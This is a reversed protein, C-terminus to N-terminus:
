ISVIKEQRRNLVAQFISATKHRLTNIKAVQGTEHKAEVPRQVILLIGVNEETAEGNTIPIPSGLVTSINSYNRMHSAEVYTM